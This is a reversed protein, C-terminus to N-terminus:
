VGTLQPVDILKRDETMSNIVMLKESIRFLYDKLSAEETQGKGFESCLLSGEKIEAHKFRTAIGWDYTNVVLTLDHIEAFETLTMQKTAKNNREIKM